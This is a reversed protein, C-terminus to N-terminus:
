YVYLNNFVLLAAYVDDDTCPLTKRLASSSCDRSVATIGVCLKGFPTCVGFSPGQKRADGAGSDREVRVCCMIIIYM